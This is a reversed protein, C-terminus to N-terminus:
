EGRLDGIGQSISGVAVAASAIVAYATAPNPAIITGCGLLTNGVGAVAGALIKGVGNFIKRKKPVDTQSQVDSQLDTSSLMNAARQIETNADSMVRRPRVKGNGINKRAYHILITIEEEPYDVGSERLFELDEPPVASRRLNQFILEPAEELANMVGAQEMLRVAQSLPANHLEVALENLLEKSNPREAVVRNLRALSALREMTYRLEDDGLRGRRGGMPRLHKRGIASLLNRYEEDTM